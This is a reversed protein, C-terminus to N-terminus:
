ILISFPCASTTDRFFIKSAHRFITSTVLDRTCHKPDHKSVYFMIPTQHDDAKTSMFKLLGLVPHVFINSEALELHM